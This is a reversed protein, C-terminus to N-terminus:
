RRVLPDSKVLSALEQEPIGKIAYQRGMDNNQYDKYSDSGAIAEQRVEHADTVQKAFSEGFSQTLL